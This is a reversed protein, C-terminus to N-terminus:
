AVAELVPEHKLEAYVAGIRAVYETADRARPASVVEPLHSIITEYELAGKALAHARALDGFGIRYCAQALRRRDDESRKGSFWLKHMRQMTWGFAMTAASVNTRQTDVPWGLGVMANEWRPFDFGAIGARGDDTQMGADLDSEVALQAKFWRCDWLPLFRKSAREILEDYRDTYFNM